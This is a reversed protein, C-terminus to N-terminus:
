RSKHLNLPTRRPRLYTKPHIGTSSRPPSSGGVGSRPRPCACGGSVLPNPQRYYILPSGDQLHMGRLGAPTWPRLPYNRNIRNTNWSPPKAGPVAADASSRETRSRFPPPARLVEGAPKGGEAEAAGAKRCGRQFPQLYDRYHIFTLSKPRQKQSKEPPRPSLSPPANYLKGEFPM